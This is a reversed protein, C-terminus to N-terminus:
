GRGRCSSPPRRSRRRRPDAAELELSSKWPSRKKARTSGLIGVRARERHLHAAADDPLRRERERDAVLLEDLLVFSSSSSPV